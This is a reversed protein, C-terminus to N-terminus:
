RFICENKVHVVKFRRLLQKIDDNEGLMPYAERPHVASTVFIKTSTFPLPEKGRRRVYCAWKDCLDLFRAYAIEGRFDNFIVIQQQKYADWWGADHPYIYHTSPHYDHLVRHSKGTGTSGYYWVCEPMETRWVQRMKIDQIKELTRGYQHYMFPDEMCIGDVDILGDVIREKLAKLDSREGQSPKEGFIKVNTKDKTCYAINEETSGACPRFDGIKLKEVASWTKANHFYIYTQYHLRQTTPCLEEGYVMYKYQQEDWVPPKNFVTFCYSRVRKEPIKRPKNNGSCKQTVKESM